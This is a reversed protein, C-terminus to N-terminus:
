PKAGTSAAPAVLAAPAVSTSPAPPTPLAPPAPLASAAAPPASPPPPPPKAAPASAVPRALLQTDGAPVRFVLIFGEPDALAPATFGDSTGITARISTSADGAAPTAALVLKTQLVESGRSLPSTPTAKPGLVVSTAMARVSADPDFTRARDLAGKGAVDGRAVLARVAARRLRENGLEGYRAVLEGIARRDPSVGLGLLAAGRISLDESALARAVFPRAVDGGRAALLFAALPAVEGDESLWVALTSTSVPVDREPSGDVDRAALAALARVVQPDEDTAWALHERALQAAKKAPHAGLGVAAARRQVVDKARLSDRADGTDLVAPLLASLWRDVEAPSGRMAEAEKRVARPASGLRAARVAGARVARRRRSASGASRDGEVLAGLADAAESGPCTALAYAAADAAGNADDKPDGKAIELLAPVGPAGARGLAAIAAPDGGKAAPTLLAVLGATPHRVAIRVAERAAAPRKDTSLARIADDAGPERLIALAETAAVRTVVVDATGELALIERAISAIRGDGMEALARLAMAASTPEKGKAVGILLDAARLDRSAVLLEVTRVGLSGGPKLPLTAGPAVAFAILASRQADPKETAQQFLFEQEGLRALAIAATDKVLRVLEGDLRTTRPPPPPMSPPSPMWPPVPAPPVYTSRANPQPNQFVDRLRLKALKPRPDDVLARVAVLRVQLAGDLDDSAGDLAANEVMLWTRDELSAVGALAPDDALAKKVDGDNKLGLEAVRREKARHADRGMEAARGVAAARVRADTSKVDREVAALGLVGGFSSPSVSPVVPAEVPEEYDEDYYSRASASPGNLAGVGLAGFAVLGVLLPRACRSRTRRNRM